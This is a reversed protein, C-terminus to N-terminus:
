GSVPNMLKGMFLLSQTRNDRIVFVFPRNANFAITAPASDFIIVITVAAAETGKENVEVFTKHIVEDISVGGGPIMLSFDAGGSFAIGMGMESLDRKLKIDYELKFRPLSLALTASDLKMSQIWEAYTEPQLDAIIDEVTHNGKPLFVTMSFISDGYPLDVVQMMENEFYLFKAEPLHMMDAEVTGSPAFFPKNETLKEDFATMWTGKFYIANILLMVVDDTLEGLAKDILGDTHDEVWKNVKLVAATPDARFDIPVVESSFYEENLKLFAELVPYDVQPWISQALKLKTDPDLLPLVKLLTRFAGNITDLALGDLRLTKLMDELTQGAAGNATMMLATSVSLPSIFLNKEPDAHSNIQKFLDIAFEGNAASLDCVSPQDDCTFNVPLEKPVLVDKNCQSFLVVTLLAALFTPFTRM